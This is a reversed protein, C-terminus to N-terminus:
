KTVEIVHTEELSIYKLFHMDCYSISSQISKKLSGWFLPGLRNIIGRGEATLYTQHQSSGSTDSGIIKTCLFSLLSLLEM